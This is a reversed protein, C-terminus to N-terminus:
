HRRGDRGVLRRCLRRSAPDAEPKLINDTGFNPMQSQRADADGSRVGHTITTQIDTLKGGWLWV